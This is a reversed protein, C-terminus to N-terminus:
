SRNEPYVGKFPGFIESYNTAEKLAKEEVKIRVSLIVVNLISFIFATWYAQFILPIVAIETIVIFYNPHRMYRYPGKAIVSAGPLIMIRTNWFPGLSTLAWIRGFQTVVFILFPILMWTTYVVEKTTVEILLSIFFLTHLLVIYPYHNKGVEYGGKSKIWIANRKAIILEIVRQLVIITIFVFALFMDLSGEM